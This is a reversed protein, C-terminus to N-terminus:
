QLNDKVLAQAEAVLRLNQEHSIKAQSQISPSLHLLDRCLIINHSLLIAKQSLSIVTSSTVPYLGSSEILDQLNGKDPYGWSVVKLGSCNGYQIADTTCKTNTVLWGKAFGHHRKLDEFRSKVYLTVKVDSRVGPQNHYKCEIMHNETDKAAVVDVEHNVCEGELIQNTKCVYGYQTLVAAIYKEFPYGSPGLELLSQKLSYISGGVPYSKKLFEIIHHYIERTPINPSLNSRVHNAVESELSQPIGARRISAILKKESFPEKEGNAKIVLYQNM